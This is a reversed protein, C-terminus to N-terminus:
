GGVGAELVTCVSAYVAELFSSCVCACVGDFVPGVAVLYLMSEVGHVFM